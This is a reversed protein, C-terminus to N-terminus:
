CLIKGIKGKLEERLAVSGEKTEVMVRQSNVAKVECVNFM